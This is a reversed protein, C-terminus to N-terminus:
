HRNKGLMNKPFLLQNLFKEVPIGSNCDNNSTQQRETSLSNIQVVDRGKNDDM